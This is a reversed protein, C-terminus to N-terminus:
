AAKSLGGGVVKRRATARPYIVPGRCNGRSVALITRRFMGFESAVTHPAVGESFGLRGIV